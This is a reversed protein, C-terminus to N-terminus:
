ASFLVAADFVTLNTITAIDAVAHRLLPSLPSPKNGRLARTLM